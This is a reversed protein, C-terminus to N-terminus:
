YTDALVQTIATDILNDVYQKTAVDTNATPTGSVGVMTASVKGTSPNFTFNNAKRVAETRTTNDATGSFIVEYNANSSSATQTVNADVDLGSNRDTIHYYKGNNKEASSLQDYAASTIEIIEDDATISITNGTSNFTVTTNSGNVFDIAGSSTDTSLQQTGNIKVNRWTDTGGGGSVAAWTGDGKLFKDKDAIVPRPVLGSAGNASATAGTFDVQEGYTEDMYKIQSSYGGLTALMVNEITANWGHCVCTLYYTGTLNSVDIEVTGYDTNSRPFYALAVWDTSTPNLNIATTIPYVLLGIQLYWDPRGATEGGGYCSSTNVDFVIKDWDTVDIGQNFRFNCGIYVGGNWTIDIETSTSTVNMVSNNEYYGTIATCDLASTNGIDSKPIFRATGDNKQATTLRNYDSLTIESLESATDSYCKGNLYIRNVTETIYVYPDYYQTDQYQGGSIDVVAYFTGGLTQTWNVTWSRLLNMTGLGSHWGIWGTQTTSSDSEFTESACTINNPVYPQLESPIAWDDSTKTFGNFFWLVKENSGGEDFVRVVIEDNDGYTYYSYAPDLRSGNSYAMYVIDDSLKSSPLADYEAQTLEVINATSGDANVWKNNTSDYTLVQGDIPSTLTVDSLSSLTPAVSVAIVSDAENSSTFDYVLYRGEGGTYTYTLTGETTQRESLLPTLNTPKTSTFGYYNRNGSNAIRITQGEYLSLDIEIQKYDPYLTSDRAIKSSSDIYSATYIAYNVASSGGGGSAIADKLSTHTGDWTEGSPTNIDSVTLDGTSPNFKLGASKKVGNVETATSASNSLLVELDSNASSETQTVNVDLSASSTRDTIHYYKGNHKEAYSLQDYEASTKEIIENAEDDIYEKIEGDYLTLGHLDLYNKPM